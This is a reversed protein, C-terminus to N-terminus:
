RHGAGKEEEGVGVDRRAQHDDGRGNDQGQAGQGVQLPRQLKEQAQTQWMGADQAEEPQRQDQVELWLGRM